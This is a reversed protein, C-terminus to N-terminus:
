HVTSYFRSITQLKNALMSLKLGQNLPSYLLFLRDSRPKPSCLKTEIRSKISQLTFVGEQQRKRQYSRRKLGQNLPSYLLFGNFLAINVVIVITEIRSKISQLTFVTGFRQIIRPLSPKLGQNLPSYLLFSVLWLEKVQLPNQKM